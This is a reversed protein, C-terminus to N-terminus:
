ERPLPVEVITPGVSATLAQDLEGRNQATRYEWGYAAALAEIPAHQPTYLVRDFAPGASDAVELGDFITGGGDNGVIVQIRPREEGEGFLLAGVDHLFTLDGVLVRTTGPDISALAIGLATSITGDIGALGRNAHVTIRKGPVARDVERILRSAGLVLRDHPWTARWVAEALSRRTVPARVAALEAKAHAGADADIDPATDVDEILARSAAVWRGAWSRPAPEGEVVLADTYTRVRRGPNYDEASAHRVVITEVGDRQILAPVERSLTPHGFVIVRDIADALETHLLERYAVVLNPGFHAGSAAEAILPAGLERAVEEARPGSNTGAVVITGEAPTVTLTHEPDREPTEPLPELDPAIFTVPSSLPEAFALNLHVPGSAAALADRALAAAADTEGPKGSPAAVDWTRRVAGGFIGPQETTQNSGIGRLSDPRDATIVILPVGSHHAELVAPHLNAVATGSTTVLIVPRKKEVAIGLALFGGVREDIRVRLRLQGIRELEAAALALAQSRSGPGLVVDRVGLRVFEQLLAVSFTTAPSESPPTPTM